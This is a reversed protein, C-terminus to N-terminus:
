IQIFKVDVYTCVLDFGKENVFYNQSYVKESLISLLHWFYSVDFTLVKELRQLIHSTFLMHKTAVGFIQILYMSVSFM